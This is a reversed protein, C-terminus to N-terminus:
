QAMEVALDETYKLCCRMHGLSAKFEGHLLVPRSIRIERGDREAHQSRLSTGSCGPTKNTFSSRRGSPERTGENM